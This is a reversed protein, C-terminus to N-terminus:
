TEPPWITWTELSGTATFPTIMLMAASVGPAFYDYPNDPGQIPFSTWPGAGDLSSGTIWISVHFTM